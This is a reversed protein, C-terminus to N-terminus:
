PNSSSHGVLNGKKAKSDLKRTVEDYSRCGFFQMMDLSPKTGKLASEQEQRLVFNESRFKGVKQTNRSDGEHM